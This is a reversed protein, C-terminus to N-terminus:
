KGGSNGMCNGASFLHSIIVCVTSHEVAIIIILIIVSTTNLKIRRKEPNDTINFLKNIFQEM